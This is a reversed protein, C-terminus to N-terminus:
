RLRKMQPFYEVEVKGIIKSEDVFKHEWYRSDWSNNRNDGMVFYMGSPVKFSGFDSNLEQSIYDETIPEGDIYVVGGIGEVTEGPLGIIRKLYVTDEDDPYYFTVIDGRQPKDALYALRNVLVRSLIKKEM